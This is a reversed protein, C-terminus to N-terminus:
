NTKILKQTITRDTGFFQVCYVGVPLSSIDLRMTEQNTAPIIEHLLRGQVDCLRIAHIANAENIKLTINESAPNPYFRPFNNIENEAIGVGSCTVFIHISDNVPLARGCEDFITNHDAGKKAVLTYRGTAALSDALTVIFANNMAGYPNIPSINLIPLVNQNPDKFLFDSGTADLSEGFFDFNTQVEFSTAKCPLNAQAVQMALNGLTASDLAATVIFRDFTSTAILVPLGTTTDTRYEQVQFGVSWQGITKAYFWLAGNQNNLNFGISDVCDMPKALSYGALFPINTTPGTRVAAKTIYLSDGDPDSLFQNIAVFRGVPLFRSIPGHMVFSNNYVPAVLPHITSETYMTYDTTYSYNDFVTRLNQLSIFMKIGCALQQPTFTLLTDYKYKIASYPPSQCLHSLTDKDPNFISGRRVVDISDVAGPCNITEFYLKMKQPWSLGSYINGGHVTVLYQGPVNTSDGIYKYNIILSSIHSAFLQPVTMLFLIVILLLNKKM